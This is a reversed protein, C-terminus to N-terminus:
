PTEQPSVRCEEVGPDRRGAVDPACQDPVSAQNGPADNPGAARAALDAWQNGIVAVCGFRHKRRQHARRTTLHEKIHRLWVTRGHREGGRM